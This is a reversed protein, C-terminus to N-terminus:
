FQRFYRRADTVPPQVEWYSERGAPRRLALADRGALRFVWGVPTFVAYFLFALGLHTVLWGVPFALVLWTVYVPRVLRPRLLGLPGVTLALAALVAAWGWRDHRWGQWAALALFFGLWLGAFQRLTRAAPAWTIESWRM